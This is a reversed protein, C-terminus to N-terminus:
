VQMCGIHSTTVFYHLRENAPCLSLVLGTLIVFFGVTTYWAELRMYVYNTQHSNDFMNTADCDLWYPTQSLSNGYRCSMNIRLFHLQNDKSFLPQEYRTIAHNYHFDPTQNLIITVLQLSWMKNTVRCLSDMFSLFFGRHDACMTGIDWEKINGQHCWLWNSIADCHGSLQSMLMHITIDLEISISTIWPSIQPQWDSLGM